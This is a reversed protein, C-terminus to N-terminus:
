SFPGVKSLLWLAQAAVVAGAGITIAWRRNRGVANSVQEVLMGVLVIVPPVASFARRDVTFGAVAFFILCLGSVALAAAPTVEGLNTKLDEAHRRPGLAVAFLGLVLAPLAQRGALVALGVVNMLLHVLAGIPDSGLGTWLWTVESYVAMEAFFFQGTTLRVWTYWAGAPLLSIVGTVLMRLVLKGKRGRIDSERSRQWQGLWIMPVVVMFLAYTTIALGTLLAMLGMRWWNDLRGRRVQRHAWLAFLPALIALLATNPSFLFAKVVDNFLLLCGVVLVAISGSRRYSTLGSYLGVSLAVFAFNLILYPIYTSFLDLTFADLPHGALKALWGSLAYSSPVVRLLLAALLVLGPRSQRNTTPQLLDQPERALRLYEPSDCNLVITIYHNPSWNEACYPHDYNDPIRHFLLLCAALALTLPAYFALVHLGRAKNEGARLEAM